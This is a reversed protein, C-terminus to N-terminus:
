FGINAEVFKRKVYYPVMMLNDSHVWITKLDPYLTEKVELIM